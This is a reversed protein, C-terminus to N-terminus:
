SCLLFKLSFFYISLYFLLLLRVPGSHTFWNTVSVDFVCPMEFGLWFSIINIYFISSSRGTSIFKAEKLQDM